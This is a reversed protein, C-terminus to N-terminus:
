MFKEPIPQCEWYDYLYKINSAPNSRETLELYLLRKVLTDCLEIRNLENVNNVGIKELVEILYEKSKTDCTTGREVKRMDIEEDKSYQKHIPKRIKFKTTLGGIEKYYFGIIVDNEKYVVCDGGYGAADFWGKANNYFRPITSISYGIPLVSGIKLKRKISDNIIRVKDTSTIGVNIPTKHM